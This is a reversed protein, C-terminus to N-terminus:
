LTTALLINFRSTALKLHLYPRYPNRICITPICVQFGPNLKGISLSLKGAGFMAQEGDITFGELRWSKKKKPEVEKISQCLLEKLSISVRNL